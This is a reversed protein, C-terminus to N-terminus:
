GMVVIGFGVLLLMQLIARAVQGTIAGLLFTARQTPTVMLRRLTGKQREYAFLSSIGILPVFVWTILQGASSNARPDYEIQEKTAGKSIAIRDPAASMQAQAAQLSADFYATRSAESAFPQIREAEAVSAKAIDVVSSIRDIVASVVRGAVLANVTNPQQRLELEDNGQQLHQLDFQPPIFLLASVRRASFEDEAKGAPLVEPRVSESKDLAAILESALPTDAQDVVVLRIRPDATPGTGGALVVTFVMPLIIFFLWESASAFSLRIDKWAIVFVKRM